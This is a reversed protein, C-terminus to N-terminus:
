PRGYSFDHIHLQPKLCGDVKIQYVYIQTLQSQPMEVEDCNLESTENKLKTRSPWLVPVFNNMAIHHPSDITVYQLLHVDHGKKDTTPPHSDSGTELNDM